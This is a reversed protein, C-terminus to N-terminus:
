GILLVRHRVGVEAAIQVLRLKINFMRGRRGIIGFRVRARRSIRLDCKKM